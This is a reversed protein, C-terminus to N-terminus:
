ETRPSASPLRSHAHFSLTPTIQRRRKCGLMVPDGILGAAGDLELKVRDDPSDVEKVLSRFLVVESVQCAPDVCVPVQGLDELTIPGDDIGDPLSDVRRPAASM